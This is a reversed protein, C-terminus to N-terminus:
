AHLMVPAAGPDAISASRRHRRGSRGLRRWATAATRSRPRPTAGRTPSCPPTAPRRTPPSRRRRSVSPTPSRARSSSSRRPGCAVRSDALDPQLRGGDLVRPAGLGAGVGQASALGVNAPAGPRRANADRAGRGPRASRSARSCPVRGDSRHVRGVASRNSSRTRRAFGPPGPSSSGRPTWTVRAHRGSVGDAHDLSRQRRRLHGARSPAGRAPRPGTALARWPSRARGARRAGGGALGPDGSRRRRSWHARPASPPNRAAAYRLVGGTRPPRTDRLPLRRDRRAARGDAADCTNSGVAALTRAWVVPGAGRGRLAGRLRRHEPERAGAVGRRKRRPAPRRRGPRADRQGGAAALRPQRRCARACGRTAPATPSRRGGRAPRWGCRRRGDGGVGAPRPEASLPPPHARGRKRDFRRRPRSLRRFLGAFLPADDEWRLGARHPKPAVMRAGTPPRPSRRSCSARRASRATPLSGSPTPSRRSARSRRARARALQAPGDAPRTPRGLRWPAATAPLCTPSRRERRRGLPSSTTSSRWRHTASAIARPGPSATARRTPARRRSPRSWASPGRPRSVSDTPSRRLSSPGASSRAASLRPVVGPSGSPWSPWSRRRARRARSCCTSTSGCSATIAPSWSSTGPARGAGRDIRRSRSALIATRPEHRAGPAGVGSSHAHKEWVGALERAHHGAVDVEDGHDEAGVTRRDHEVDM